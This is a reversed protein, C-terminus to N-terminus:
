EYPTESNDSIAVRLRVNPVGFDGNNCLCRYNVFCLVLVLYLTPFVPHSCYCLTYLSLSTPLGSWNFAEGKEHFGNGDFAGSYFVSCTIVVTALVGTASVYSLTTLDDIWVTPLVILSALLLFTQRGSIIFLGQIDVEVKPLLNHLNDAVLILFSVALLYLELNMFISVVFRGKRGFAKFGIDSYSRINSDFEMCRQILIGTYCTVGGIMLLLILSM